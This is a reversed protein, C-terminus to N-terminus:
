FFGAANRKGPKRLLRSLEMHATEKKRVLVPTERPVGTKTYAPLKQSAFILCRLLLGAM